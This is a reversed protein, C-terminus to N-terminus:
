RYIIIAGITLIASVTAVINSVMLPNDRIIIGYWVMWSTISVVGCAFRFLFVDKASKNQIIEYFQSYFVSQGFIGIFYMYKKYWKIMASRKFNDM